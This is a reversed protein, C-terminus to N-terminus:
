SQGPFARSSLFKANLATGPKGSTSLPERRFGKQREGFADFAEFARRNAIGHPRPM